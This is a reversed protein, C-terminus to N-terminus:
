DQSLIEVFVATANDKGGCRSVHRIAALAADQLDMQFLRKRIAEPELHEHLGDTCLLFRDGAIVRTTFIDVEVAKGLGLARTIPSKRSRQAPGHLDQQARMNQLTHDETVQRNSHGRAHYVRTDGVQGIVAYEGVVLMVSATTSMGTLRSDELGLDFIARSAHQMASRLVGCIDELSPSAAGSRQRTESALPPLDDAGVKRWSGTFMADQVQEQIISVAEAAAIEGSRRGGVGDCVIFLGFQEDILFADENKARYSGCDSIGSHRTRPVWPQSRGPLDRAVKIAERAAVFDAPRPGGAGTVGPNRLHSRM